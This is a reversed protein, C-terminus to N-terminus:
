DLDKQTPDFAWKDNLNGSAAGNTGTAYYGIDGVSFGVAAARGGGEFANRKEWTDTAPNYEWNESNPSGNGLRGGVVYAKGQIVFTSAQQRPIAGYGKDNKDEDQKDDKLDNKETWNNNTPNYVYLDPVSLGNNMGGGVYGEGDIVFSFANYRETKPVAPKPIWDNNVEDYQYFDKFAKNDNYGTGVYGKNDLTFAFAGYRAEGEFDKIRTWEDTAPDYSWFDNLPKVGDFGLGVYGKGNSSFAVASSRAAAEAPMDSKRLWTDIGADYVWLDRLFVKTNNGNFGTSIYINDNITFLVAERRAGADVSSKQYWEGQIEADEPDGESGNCSVFFLSVSLVAAASLWLKMGKFIISIRDM